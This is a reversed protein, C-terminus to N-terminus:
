MGQPKPLLPAPQPVLVPCPLYDKPAKICPKYQAQAQSAIATTAFAGLALATILSKLM